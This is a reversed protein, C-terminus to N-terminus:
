ARRNHHGSHFRVVARLSALRAEANNCAARSPAYMREIKAINTIASHHEEGFLEVSAIGLAALPEGKSWNWATLMAIACLTIARETDTLPTANTKTMKFDTHMQKANDAWSRGAAGAIRALTTIDHTAM